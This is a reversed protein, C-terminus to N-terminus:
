RHLILAPNCAQYALERPNGYRADWYFLEDKNAPNLTVCAEDNLWHACVVDHSMDSYNVDFNFKGWSGRSNLSSSRIKIAPGDDTTIWDGKLDRKSGYVTALAAQDPTLTPADLTTYFIETDRVTWTLGHETQVVYYVHGDKCPVENQITVSMNTCTKDQGFIGVIGGCESPADPLYAARGGLTVRPKLATAEAPDGDVMAEPLLPSTAIPVVLDADLVTILTNNVKVVVYVAGNCPAHKIEEVVQDQNNQSDHWDKQILACDAEGNNIYYAGAKLTATKAFASAVSLGFSLVALLLFFLSKM